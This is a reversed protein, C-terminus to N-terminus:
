KGAWAQYVAPLDKTDGVQCLALLSRTNSEGFAERGTSIPQVQAVEQTGQLHSEKLAEVASVLTAVAHNPATEVGSSKLGTLDRHLVMREMYLELDVEPQFLTGPASLGTGPM